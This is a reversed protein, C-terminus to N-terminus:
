LRRAGTLRVPAHRRCIEAVGMPLEATRMASASRNEYYHTALMMVAQRLDAPVDSWMGYGATFAIDASGGVPIVPLQFGVAVLSPAYTDPRLRYTAPDVAVTGGALDQITVSIVATVPAVPFVQAALDRWAQVVLLFDRAILAKGTRGEVAALAARLEGLLVADQLGDEAFGTGLHLHERLEAVPLSGDPVQTQEVLIM